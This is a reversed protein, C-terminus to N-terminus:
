GACSICEEKSDRKAVSRIYYVTKLGKKWASLYLNYFDVAKFDPNNLNIVLEMSIGQDTWSQIVEIANIVKQQDLKTNEQYYWFTDQSLLPPFVPVSGKSNSDIFFKNYCPLVSATAGVLPSTSTNPAIAFIGGNRLGHAKIRAALAHWQTPFTSKSAIDDFSRGFAIGKSWESNEYNPYAGREEALQNSAALGAFAIREYLSNILELGNGYTKKHRVLYDQLGMSGIGIIRYLENHLKSSNIPPVSLDIANDLMEVALATNYEIEDEALVALNLSVLNCTHTEGLEVERIEKQLENTKNIFRTPSFNSVSEVCLNASGIMGCHKNPNVNNVNDKFFQYPLGTEVSKKLIEKYLEKANIERKVKIDPNAELAIYAAEFEAGYLSPLDYGFQLCEYPDFLTWTENNEVRKMFLDPIVVQPFVDFAKRRLDGNETQMNIFEEIDLHWVDLAVTCAGARAGAGQSVALMTDNVIKIWPLVGKSGSPINQFYSGNARIRSCNLGCGGGNKSIQALEDIVYFINEINDDFATIYCSVLCGNPRRLNMLLPTAPSIKRGALAHYFEIARKVRDKSPLALLAAVTMYMEQPLEYPKGEHQILYRTELLNAGAYDYQINYNGDIESGLEMLEKDSYELIKDDYLGLKVSAHVFQKYSSAPYIDYDPNCERELRTELLALKLRGALKSYGLDKFDNTINTLSLCIHVVQDWSKADKCLDLLKTTDIDLDQSYVKITKEYQSM